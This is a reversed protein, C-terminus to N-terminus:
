LDGNCCASLLREPVSIHARLQSMQIRHKPPRFRSVELVSPGFRRGVRRGQPLGHWKRLYRSRPLPGISPLRPLASQMWLM